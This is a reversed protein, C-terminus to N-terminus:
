SSVVQFASRQISLASPQHPQRKVWRYAALSNKWFFKEEAARGKGAIYERVVKLLQPYPGKMDSVPWNSAYIMRDEGFIEWFEDLRPKYM